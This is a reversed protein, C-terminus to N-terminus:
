THVQEKPAKLAGPLGFPRHVVGLQGAHYADHVLFTGVIQGPPM